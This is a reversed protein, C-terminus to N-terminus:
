EMPLHRDLLPGPEGRSDGATESDLIRATRRFLDSAGHPSDGICTMGIKGYQSLAGIMYFLTGTGSAQRYGIGHNAVIELLDEPLLGRYDASRLNDTASYYKHRGDPAIFLGSEADHAGGTLFELAHFPPTTGGMRLNIEIAWPRSWDGGAKRTVLFDIGFRGVVGKSALQQGIKEAERLLPRRYDDHAPFRCGLYSQGTAGGLVQEHSSVLVPQGDPTVRMQVSPSRMEDAVILKEVVGGMSAFKGLFSDATEITSTFCLRSLADRMSGRDSPDAPFEFLGNGEGGFGENLKVVARTIGRRKAALDMLAEVIDNETQLDESGAPFQVGAAAFIRRNGSKTGLSLLEPDVGNLPIGLEVSM